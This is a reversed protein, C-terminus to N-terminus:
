PYWLPFGYYPYISCASHRFIDRGLASAGTKEHQGMLHKCGGNEEIGVMETVYILSIYPM